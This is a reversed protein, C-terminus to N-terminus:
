RVAERKEDGFGIGAKTSAISAKNQLPRNRLKGM